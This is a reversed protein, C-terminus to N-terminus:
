VLKKYEQLINAILEVIKYIELDQNIGRLVTENIHIDKTEDDIWVAYIDKVDVKYKDIQLEYTTLYIELSSSDSNNWINIIPFSLLGISSFNNRSEYIFSLLLEGKYEKVKKETEFNIYIDYFNDINSFSDDIKQKLFKKLLESNNNDYSIHEVYSILDKKNFLKDQLENSIMGEESVVVTNLLKIISQYSEYAKYLKIKEEESCKKLDLDQTISIGFLSFIKAKLGRKPLEQTLEEVMKISPKFRQELEFLVHSLEIVKTKIGKTVVLATNMEEAALKAEELNTYADHKTAEAKAAFMMGGIALIPAAVIGGLIATGGAIGLGSGLAGGGFWALTANTAAAGALSSIATGTTAAGFTAVGGYAALGVLGGAGLSTIGGGVIEKLEMNNEVMKLVIEKSPLEYEKGDITISEINKLKTFIDQFPIISNQFINFKLVGLAEMALQTSEREEELEKKASDYLHRAKSNIKDAEDYDCKADYGKKAGYAGVLVAAGAILFPIPM